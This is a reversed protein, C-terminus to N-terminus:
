VEEGWYTKTAHHKILCLSLKIKVKVVKLKKVLQTTIPKELLVIGCPTM